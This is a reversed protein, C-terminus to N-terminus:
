LREDVGRQNGLSPSKQSRVRDPIGGDEGSGGGMGRLSIDERGDWYAFIHGCMKGGHEIEKDRKFASCFFEVRGGEDIGEIGGGEEDRRRGGSV